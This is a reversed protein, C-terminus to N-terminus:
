DLRKELAVWATKFEERFVRSWGKRGQLRFAVCGEDRAYQEIPAVAKVWPIVAEGGCAVVRCVLGAPVAELASVLAAYIKQGDTTVWLLMAGQHLGTRLESLTWDGCRQTANNLLTSVHPWIQHVDKPDICILGTL